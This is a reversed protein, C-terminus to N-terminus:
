EKYFHFQTYHEAASILDQLPDNLTNDMYIKFLRDTDGVYDTTAKIRAVNKEKMLPSLIKTLITAAEAFYKHAEGLKEKLIKESPNRSFKAHDHCKILLELAHRLPKDAELLDEWKIKKGDILFFAKVGIKFINEEIESAKKSDSEKEVIKKLSSVLNRVEEPAQARIAKKGLASTAAKGGVNKKIKFALEQARTKRKEKKLPPSAEKTMAKEIADTWDKWEQEEECFFLYDLSDNRLVFCWQHSSGEKEDKYLKLDRLKISGKPESDEVEKYYHLSGGILNIYYCKWKQHFKKKERKTGTRKYLFGDKDFEESM